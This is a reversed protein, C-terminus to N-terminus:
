VKRPRFTAAGNFGYPRDPEHACEQLGEAASLDRGWQLGADGWEISLKLDAKRPRFTAAGNFRSLRAQFTGGLQCRGRGFPRPGM